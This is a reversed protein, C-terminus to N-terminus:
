IERYQRELMDQYHRIREVYRVPETGRAYGYPLKKYYDKRSLLPLVTKLDRWLYPDKGLQRALTMADRLHGFGVNYAALALWTRDPEQIEEPLRRKMQELYRAGGLISKTPNLRNQIGLEEATNRTLMMIGRVGTPSKARPNWRSEQYAQAALLTWPIDHQEAAQQFVPEYQPLRKGTYRYFRKTDVYDFTDIHAYYQHFLNEFYSTEQMTAFWDEILGHLGEADSPLLWALEQEESVPMAVVLDPFFRQNIDVIHSDAITCDYEQNEIRSFIEEISLRDTGVWSVEPQLLQLARLREEHSTTSAILINMHALEEPTRPMNSQRHCVVEQQIHQYSPGFRFHRQRSPTVTLGAAIFDGEGKELAQFLEATSALVKFRPTIGLHAAFASAMDYEIGAKGQPRLYYTTPGFRTLVVIEGKEQLTEKRNQKSQADHREVTCSALFGVCFVSILFFILQDKSLLPIKMPPTRRERQKEEQRISEAGKWHIPFTTFLTSVNSLFADSKSKEYGYAVKVPFFSNLVRSVPFKRM